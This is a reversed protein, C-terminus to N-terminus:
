SRQEEILSSVLLSLSLTQGPLYKAVAVTQIAMAVISAVNFIEFAKSSVPLSIVGDGFILLPRSLYPNKTTGVPTNLNQHPQSTPPSVKPTFITM